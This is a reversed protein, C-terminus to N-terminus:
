DGLHSQVSLRHVNFRRHGLPHDGSLVDVFYTGVEELQLGQIEVVIDVVMLPDGFIAEGDFRALERDSPSKIRFSLVFRGMGNTLSAMLFMRPHVTPLQTVGIGNFLSVLTKNNTRKDEIIENCIIVAICIPQEREDEDLPASM